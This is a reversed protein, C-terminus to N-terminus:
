NLTEDVKREIREFLKEFGKRVLWAVAMSAVSVVAAKVYKNNLNM